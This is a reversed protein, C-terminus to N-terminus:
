ADGLRRMWALREWSADEHRKVYEVRVHVAPEEGVLSLCTHHVAWAGDEGPLARAIPQTSLVLFPEGDSEWVEGRRGKM